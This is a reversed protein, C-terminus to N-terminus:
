FKGELPSNTRFPVTPLGETNYLNPHAGESWAFRVAVPKAVSPASVIVNDDKIIATATVFKGDEGAIEFCNLPQGTNSILGNGTYNFEIIIKDGEIQMKKFAPGSAMMGRVGYAKVLACLALRRGIEWKFHPHLNDLSDNLDTTVVMATNRIKLALAQAERFEPLSEETLQIKGKTKSYAFPAIEVYYFPLAPDSWKNRWYNILGQMKYTYQLTEKLFCNTEGQYWLFGKIAYPELPAIMTQYFKGPEGEIKRSPDTSDKFYPLSTFAEKPAWPEIRSGPVASSIVGVPVHLEQYLKKAFFYGVASFSRLASDRAISWGQHLSDANMRKRDVLFIRIAPDKAIDLENVPWGKVGPPVAVKSNKRMSYEMNSQGSCLWVEGVLINNLKIENKGKIYLVGPQDSAPMPDLLVKWHGSADTVANKNQGGFKVSVSEGPTAYGWIPVPKNRQLVMNHGIIKPLVVQANAPCIWLFSLVVNIIFLSKIGKNNM